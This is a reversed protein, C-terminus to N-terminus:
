RHLKNYHQHPEPDGIIGDLELQHKEYESLYYDPKLEWSVVDECYLDGTFQINALEVVQSYNCSQPVDLIKHEMGGKPKWYPHQKDGYNEYIQTHVVLMM